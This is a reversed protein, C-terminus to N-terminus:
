RAAPWRSPSPATIETHGGIWAIGLDGCARRIQDFCAEVTEPTTSGAPFLLTATLFEPTAGM